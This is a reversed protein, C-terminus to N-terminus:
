MMAELQMHFLCITGLVLIVFGRQYLINKLYYQECIVYCLRNIRTKERWFLQVFM